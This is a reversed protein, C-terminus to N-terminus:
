HNSIYIYISVRLNPARFANKISEYITKADPCRIIYCTSEEGLPCAIIGLVNEDREYLNVHGIREIDCSAIVEWPPFNTSIRVLDSNVEVNVSSEADDDDDVVHKKSLVELITAQLTKDNSRQVIVKKIFKALHLGLTGGTLRRLNLSKPRSLGSGRPPPSPKSARTSLSNTKRQIDSVTMEESDVSSLQPHSKEPGHFELDSYVIDIPRSRTRQRYGETLGDVNEYLSEENEGVREEESCISHVETSSSSTSCHSELDSEFLPYKVNEYVPASTSSHKVQPSHNPSQFPSNEYLVDVSRRIIGNRNDGSSLSRKLQLHAPVTESSTHKSKSTLEFSDRISQLQPVLLKSNETLKAFDQRLIPNDSERTPRSRNIEVIELNSAHIIEAYHATTEAEEDLVDHATTKPSSHPSAHQGETQIGISSVNLTRESSVSRASGQSSISSSRSSKSSYLSPAFDAPIVEYIDEAEDERYEEDSDFIGHSIVGNRREKMSDKVLSLKTNSNKDTKTGIDEYITEAIEMEQPVLRIWTPLQRRSACDFENILM